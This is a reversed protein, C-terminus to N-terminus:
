LSDRHVTLVIDFNYSQIYKEEHVASSFILSYQHQKRYTGPPLVTPAQAEDSTEM